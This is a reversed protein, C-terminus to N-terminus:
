SPMRLSRRAPPTLSKATLINLIRRDALLEADVGQELNEPDLVSTEAEAEVVVVVVV